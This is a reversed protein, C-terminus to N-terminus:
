NKNKKKGGTGNEHEDWKPNGTQEAFLKTAVDAEKGGRQTAQQKCGGFTAFTDAVYNYTGCGDWVECKM